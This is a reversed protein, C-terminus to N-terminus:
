CSQVLQRARSSRAGISRRLPCAHQLLDAARRMALFIGGGGPREGQSLASQSLGAIPEWVHAGKRDQMEPVLRAVTPLFIAGPTVWASGEFLSLISRDVV